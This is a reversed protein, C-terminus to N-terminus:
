GSRAWPDASFFASLAWAHALACAAACDAPIQVEFIASDGTVAYDVLIEGDYGFEQAHSPFSVTDEDVVVYDGDDVQQGGADLSGFRGETTFFHSHEEAPRATACIDDPDVGAEEPDGVWNEIVWNVQSEVFDAQEFAALM